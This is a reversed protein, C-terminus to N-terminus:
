RSFELWNNVNYQIQANFDHREDLISVLYYSKLWLVTIVVVGNRALIM